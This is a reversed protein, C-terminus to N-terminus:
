RKETTQKAVLIGGPVCTPASARALDSFGPKVDNVRSKAASESQVPARPLLNKELGSSLGGSATARRSGSPCGPEVDLRSSAVPPLPRAPPGSPAVSNWKGAGPFPGGAGAPPHPAGALVGVRPQRRRLHRGHLRPPLRTLELRFSLRFPAGGVPRPNGRLGLGYQLLPSSAAGGADGRPRQPAGRVPVGGRLGGPRLPRLALGRGWRGSCRRRWAPTTTTPTPSSRRPATTCSRTRGSCIRSSRRAGSGTPPSPAAWRGPSGGASALRGEVWTGRSSELM